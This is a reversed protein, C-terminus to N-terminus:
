RRAEFRLDGFWATASELTQDTDVAVAVGTIRPTPQNWQAGFAAQFDADVDRSEAVWQGARANGSELVVMRLRETYPNWISTGVPSRNDWVYCITAAPLDAGYILKALKIRARAALSLSEVPVDFSVYVRAAFDDGERTGLRAKEIVHDIKWRWALTGADAAAILLPHALTGVAAHADVRLVTHGDERVLRFEPAKKNGFTLLQWGPPMRDGPAAASFPAIFASPAAFVMACLLLPALAFRPNM